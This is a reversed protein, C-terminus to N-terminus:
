LPVGLTRMMDTLTMVAKMMSSVSQDDNLLKALSVARIANDLLTHVKTQTVRWQLLQKEGDTESTAHAVIDAQKADDFATFGADAADVTLSAIAITKSRTNHTCGTAHMLVFVLVLATGAKKVITRSVTYGQSILVSAAVGALKLWIGNTPIVDALFLVSLLMAAKSMWYESTKWGPKTQLAGTTLLKGEINEPTANDAEATPTDTTTM